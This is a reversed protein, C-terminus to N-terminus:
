NELDLLKINRFEIPHSESQLAIYGKSLSKGEKSQWADTATLFQGGYVFKSYRMVEKGNISHSILSDNHVLLEVDVWQDDYITESTSNICHETVLKDDIVVHTGPTCLNGTSREVGEEVGGLFQAELSIPFGQDLGMSEPSQCHLMVGSNKTAWSEGGKVQEGVFRYQLKLKYNSYPNKYFIHGFSDEFNDYGDYSVKLISDEVRFTNHINEGLPYGNIKINWDNLDKGNFLQIWNETVDAVAIDMVENNIKEKQKCTLLSIACAMLICIHLYKMFISKIKYHGREILV